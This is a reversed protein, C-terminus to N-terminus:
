YIGQKDEMIDISGTDQPKTSSSWYKVCGESKKKYNYLFVYTKFTHCQWVHRGCAAQLKLVDTWPLKSTQLRSVWRHKWCECGSFGWSSLNGRREPDCTSRKPVGCAPLDATQPGQSHAKTRQQRKDSVKAAGGTQSCNTAAPALVTTRAQSTWVSTSVCNGEKTWATCKVSM